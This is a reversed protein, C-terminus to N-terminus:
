VSSGNKAAVRKLRKLLESALKAQMQVNSSQLAPRLWPRAAITATGVEMFSIAYFAEKKVGLKAVFLTQNNLAVTGVNISRSSFGFPVIRGKYTVHSATKGPSVGIATINKVAARKAIQMAAKVAGRMQAKQQKSSSIDKLKRSLEAVGILDSAM